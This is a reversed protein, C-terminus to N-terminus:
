KKKKVEEPVYPNAPPTPPVDRKKVETAPTTKRDSPFQVPEPLPAIIEPYNKIQAPSDFQENGPEYEVYERSKHYIEDSTLIQRSAEAGDALAAAAGHHYGDFWAVIFEKGNPTSYKTKWYRKPPLAPACGNGGTAVAVYGDIFGREFDSLNHELKRYSARSDNWAIRADQKTRLVFHQEDIQDWLSSCGTISTLGVTVLMIKLLRQKVDMNWHM